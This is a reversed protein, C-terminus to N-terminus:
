FSLIRDSLYPNVFIHYCKKIDKKLYINFNVLLTHHFLFVHSSAGLTVLNFNSILMIATTCWTSDEM